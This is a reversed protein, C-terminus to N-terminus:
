VCQLTDICELTLKPILTISFKPEDRSWQCILCCCINEYTVHIVWM